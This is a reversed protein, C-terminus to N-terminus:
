FRRENLDSVVPVERIVEVEVEVEVIRDKEVIRDVPVKVEIIKEVEVKFPYDGSRWILFHLWQSEWKPSALNSRFDEVVGM